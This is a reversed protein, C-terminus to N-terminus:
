IMNPNGSEPINVASTFSGPALERTAAPSIVMRYSLTVSLSRGFRRDQIYKLHGVISPVIFRPTEDSAFGAKIVHSGNDIVLTQIEDGM